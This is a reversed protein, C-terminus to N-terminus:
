KLICYSVNYLDGELGLGAREVLALEVRQALDADGAQGHAELIKVVVDQLDVAAGVAAVFDVAGPAVGAAETELVDIDVEDGAHHLLRLVVPAGIHGLRDFHRRVGDGDVLHLHGVVGADVLLHLLRASQHRGHRSRPMRM